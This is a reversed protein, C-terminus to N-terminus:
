CYVVLTATYVCVTSLVVIMSRITHPAVKTREVAIANLFKQLFKEWEEDRKWGISRDEKLVLIDDKNKLAGEFIVKCEEEVVDLWRRAVGQEDETLRPLRLAWM